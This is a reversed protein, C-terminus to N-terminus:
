LCEQALVAEIRRLHRVDLDREGRHDIRQRSAADVCHIHRLGEMANGDIGALPAHEAIGEDLDLGPHMDRRVARTGLPQLGVGISHASERARHSARDLMQPRIGLLGLVQDGLEGLRLAIEHLFNRDVVPRGLEREVVHGARELDHLLFSQELLRDLRLRDDMFNPTSPTEFRKPDRVAMSSILKSTASPRNRLRSPGEPQPFDVIRRISAPSIPGLRPRMAKWPSVTAAGGGPMTYTNWCYVLDSKGQSVTSALTSNPPRLGCARRRPWGALRSAHMSVSRSTPRSSCACLCGQCSEPPMCCRTAMARASTARGSTRSMSSGNLASSASVRSLRCSRSSRSQDSSPSVTTKTVCSM